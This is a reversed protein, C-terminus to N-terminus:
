DFSFKTLFFIVFPQEACRWVLEIIIVKIFKMLTIFGDIEFGLSGKWWPKNCVSGKWNGRALPFQECFTLGPSNFTLCTKILTSHRRLSTLETKQNISRRTSHKTSMSVPARAHTHTHTYTNPPSKSALLEWGFRITESKQPVDSMWFQKWVKHYEANLKAGPMRHKCRVYVGGLLCGGFFFDFIHTM